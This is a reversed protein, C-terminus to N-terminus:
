QWTSMVVGREGKWYGRIHPNVHIITEEIKIHSLDCVRTHRYTLRGPKLVNGEKFYHWRVKYTYLNAVVIQLISILWLNLCAVMWNGCRM